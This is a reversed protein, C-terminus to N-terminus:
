VSGVGELDAINSSFLLEVIHITLLVDPPVGVMGWTSILFNALNIWHFFMRPTLRTSDGNLAENIIKVQDNMTYVVRGWNHMDTEGSPFVYLLREGGSDYYVASPVDDGDVVEGLASNTVTIPDIDDTNLEVYLLCGADAFLNLADRIESDTINNDSMKIFNFYYSSPHHLTKTQYSQLNHAMSALFLVLSDDHLCVVHRCCRTSLLEKTDVGAAMIWATFLLRWSWLEVYETEVHHLVYMRM